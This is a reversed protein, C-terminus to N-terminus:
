FEVFFYYSFRVDSRSRSFRVKHLFCNFIELINVNVGVYLKDYYLSFELLLNICRIDCIDSSWFYVVNPIRTELGDAFNQWLV